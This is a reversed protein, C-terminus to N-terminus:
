PLSAGSSWTSSVTDFIWVTTQPVFAGPFGGIVYLNTGHAAVAGIELFPSAPDLLRSVRERPPLKGRAVHRERAKAGGGGHATEVAAQVTAIAAEHAAKNAAFAEGNPSVASKLLGM